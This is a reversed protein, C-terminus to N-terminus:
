SLWGQMSRMLFGTFAINYPSLSVDVKLKMTNIAARYEEYFNWTPSPMYHLNELEFTKIIDKATTPKVFVEVQPGFYAPCVSILSWKALKGRKLVGLMTEFGTQQDGHLLERLGGSLENRGAPPLSRAFDRFKPKEFVSILSSRTIVKIMNEVILDPLKFNRKAFSEQTLEIMKDLKHKKRIAIMEPNDFGGPYRDFFAEEAQKLKEINM